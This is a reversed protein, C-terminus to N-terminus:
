KSKGYHEEEEDFMRILDSVTCSKEPPVLEWGAALRNILEDLSLGSLEELKMLKEETRNVIDIASNVYTLDTIPALYPLVIDKLARLAFYKDDTIHIKNYDSDEDGCGCTFNTRDNKM